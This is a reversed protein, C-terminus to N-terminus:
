SHQNINATPWHKDSQGTAAGGPPCLGDNIRGTTKADDCPTADITTSQTAMLAAAEELVSSDASDSLGKQALLRRFKRAGPQGKYLTLIHRTIQHLRVGGALQSRAYPILQEIVEARQLSPSKSGHMHDYIERLFYLNQYAVRGVMVGDVHQLHTDIDTLHNVGGNLVFTQGPFDRKLQYVWPYKLPPVTRNQKPNLGELWANRAHVIFADCGAAALRAIFDALLPYDTTDDVGLRHKVTVPINVTERMASVCEAVLAPNKMLCAGFQGQQVKDSPCGCNLNIEDYGAQEAYRACTALADPENGGLQLALPKEAPEFYLWRETNGRLIADTTVMETYLLAEPHLIRMLYRCHRDTWKLM